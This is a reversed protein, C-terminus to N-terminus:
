RRPSRAPAVPPAPPAPPTEEAPPAVYYPNKLCTGLQQGAAAMKCQELTTYVCEIVGSSDYPEMCFAYSPDYRGEAGAPSDSLLTAIALISPVRGRM